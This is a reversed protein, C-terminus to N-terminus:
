KLIEMLKTYCEPTKTIGQLYWVRGGIRVYYTTWGNVIGVNRIEAYQNRSEKGAFLQHIIGAIFLENM